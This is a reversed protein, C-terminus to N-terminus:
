HGLSALMTMSAVLAFLEVVLFAVVEWDRYTGKVATYIVFAIALLIPSYVVAFVAVWEAVIYFTDLTM